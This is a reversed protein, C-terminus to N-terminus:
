FDGGRPVEKATWHNLRHKWHLLWLEIGPCPVLIGCALSFYYIGEETFDEQGKCVRNTVEKQCWEM